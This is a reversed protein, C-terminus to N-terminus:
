STVVKPNSLDHQLHINGWIHLKGMCRMPLKFIKQFYVFGKFYFNKGNLYCKLLLLAEKNGCSEKITM